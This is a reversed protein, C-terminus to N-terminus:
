KFLQKILNIIEDKRKDNVGVLVCTLLDNFIGATLRECPWYVESETMIIGQRTHGIFEFIVDSNLDLIECLYRLQGDDIKYIKSNDIETMIDREKACEQNDIPRQIPGYQIDGIMWVPEWTNKQEM